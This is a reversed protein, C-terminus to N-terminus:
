CSDESSRKGDIEKWIGASETKRRLIESAREARVGQQLGQRLGFHHRGVFQRTWIQFLQLDIELKSEALELDSRKWGQEQCSRLDRRQQGAEQHRVESRNGYGFAESILFFLVM